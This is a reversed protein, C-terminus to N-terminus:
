ELSRRHAKKLRGSREAGFLNKAIFADEGNWRYVGLLGDGSAGAISFDLCLRNSRALTPRGAEPRMWYHGFIVPPGDANIFRRAKDPLPAGNLREVTQDSALISDGFCRSPSWWCLRASTRLHGDKDRYELGAPLDVEPGKLIDAVASGLARDRDAAEKFDAAGDLRWSTTRSMIVEIQQEIWAAHVARLNGFEAALPLTTFWEIDVAYEETPDARVGDVEDFMGHEDLFAAHQRINITDRRRLYGGTGDPTAFHVANLEHNGMLCLAEGNEVMARVTAVVMRGEKGRDILDGLFLARRGHPHRWVEGKKAYGLAALAGNLTAAHGHIDGFIDLGHRTEIM